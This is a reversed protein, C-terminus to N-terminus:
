LFKAIEQKLYTIENVVEEKDPGEPVKDYLGDAYALIAAVNLRKEKKGIFNYYNQYYIQRLTDEPLNLGICNEEFAVFTEETEMVRRLCSVTEKWHDSFTDSGFLIRDAKTIFFKRWIELDKAFNEFMEWGPTIDFYLNKYRDLLECCLGHQDSIFFFHPICIKLNPHKRLFRFTEEDIEYKHPFGGDGYYNGSKIAWEPLRDYHWFEVPDNIHYLLPFQEKEAYDFMKDYYEHDLPIGIEKRITPKGDLMKIGDFGVEHFWKTQRLMEEANPVKGGDYHLSAFAQCRGNGKLKLLAGLLNQTLAKKVPVVTCALYTWNTYDCYDVMEMCAPIDKSDFLHIHCDNIPYKFYMFIGGM